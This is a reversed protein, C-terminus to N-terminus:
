LLNFEKVWYTATDQIYQRNGYIIQLKKLDVGYPALRKKVELFSDRFALADQGTLEPNNYNIGYIEIRLVSPPDYPFSYINITTKLNQTTQFDDSRIPLTDVKNKENLSITNDLGSISKQINTQPPIGSESVPQLAPTVTVSPTPILPVTLPGVFKQKQFTLVLLVVLLIVAIVALIILIKKNM